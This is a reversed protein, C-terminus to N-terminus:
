SRKANAAAPPSMSDAAASMTKLLLSTM